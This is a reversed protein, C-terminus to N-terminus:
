QQSQNQIPSNTPISSTGNEGPAMTPSVSNPNRLFTSWPLPILKEPLSDLGNIGNWAASWHSQFWAAAIAELAAGFMEPHQGAFQTAAQPDQRAWNAVVQNIAAVQGAAAPQALAPLFKELAHTRFDTDPTECVWNFAGPLDTQMLRDLVALQFYSRQPENVIIASANLAEPIEARSIAAALQDFSRCRNADQEAGGIKELAARIQSQNLTGAAVDFKGAAEATATALAQSALQRQESVKQAALGAALLALVALVAFVQNLRRATRSQNQTPQVQNRATDIQRQADRTQNQIEQIKSQADRVENRAAALQSQASQAQNQWVQVENQAALLKNQADHADQRTAALQSQINQVQSQAALLQNQAAQTKEIQDPAVSPLSQIELITNQAIRAQHRAAELQNQAERAQAQAESAKTEAAQARHRVAELQTQTDRVQNQFEQLQQRADRAQQQAALAQAQAAQIQGHVDRPLNQSALAQAQAARAERQADQLQRRVEEVQNLAERAQHQAAAFDFFHRRQERWWLGNFGVGLLLAILQIKAMELDAEANRDDKALIERKEAGHRADVFIFKGARRATDLTGDPAVPHRLAPVFCEASTPDGSQHDDSVNPEGAIVVPLINKDRGLQKFYRVVENVQESQASRPSCIVILCRARELATRTEASLTAAASSAAESRFVPDIREPINEGRGNIQGVFEAPISFAKLAAHLWDGWCLSGAAPPDARQARNDPESYSLFAWYKNENETM